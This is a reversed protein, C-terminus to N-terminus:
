KGKRREFLYFVVFAWCWAGFACSLESVITQCHRLRALEVFGGGAVVTAVFLQPLGVPFGWLVFVVFFQELGVRSM